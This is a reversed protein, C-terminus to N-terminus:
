IGWFVRAPHPSTEWEKGPPMCDVLILKTVECTQLL